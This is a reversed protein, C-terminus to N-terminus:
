SSSQNSVHLRVWKRVKAKLGNRELFQGINTSLRAFCWHLNILLRNYTTANIFFIDASLVSHTAFLRKHDSQGETFDFYQFKREGFISELALWQLVTGVSHKLYDPDYGLYSYLLTDGDAPCYLYSVPRDNNFLIYARLCDISALDIARQIFEESAPLGADLLREQYTRTSVLRAQHFFERIDTPRKYERYDLKGSCHQSFKAVKRTLTSRTKSSFKAKYQDFSSALDIYFHSYQSPVYRIYDGTKSLVPQLTSVPTARIVYGEVGSASSNMPPQLCNVPRVADHLHVKRVQMPLSFEGLSFDGLQFKFPVQRFHWEDTV